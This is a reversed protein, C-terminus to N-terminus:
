QQLVRVREEPDAAVQEILHNVSMGNPQDMLNMVTSLPIERGHSCLVPAGGRHPYQPILRRPDLRITARGFMPKVKPRCPFVTGGRFVRRVSSARRRLSDAM